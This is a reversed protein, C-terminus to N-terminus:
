NSEQAGQFAQAYLGSFGLPIGFHSVVTALLAKTM